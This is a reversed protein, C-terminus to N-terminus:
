TLTERCMSILNIINVHPFSCDLINLILILDMILIFNEHLCHFDILNLALFTFSDKDLWMKGWYIQVRTGNRSPVLLVSCGLERDGCAHFCAVQLISVNCSSPVAPLSLCCQTIPGPVTQRCPSFGM